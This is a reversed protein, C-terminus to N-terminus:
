IGLRNTIHEIYKDYLNTDYPIVGDKEAKYIVKKCDSYCRWVNNDFFSPTIEFRSIIVDIEDLLEKKM